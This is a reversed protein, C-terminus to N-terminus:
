FGNPLTESGEGPNLLKDRNKNQRGVSQLHNAIQDEDHKPNQNKLGSDTLHSQNVGTARLRM